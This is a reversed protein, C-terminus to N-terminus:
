LRRKKRKNHVHEIVDEVVDEIKDIIVDIVKEVIEEFLEEFGLRVYTKYDQPNCTNANFTVRGIIPNNRSVIVGRYEEKLRYQM